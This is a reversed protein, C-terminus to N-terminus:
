GKKAPAPPADAATAEAAAPEPPALARELPVAGQANYILTTDGGTVPDLGSEERVENLTRKGNRLDRDHIQSLKDPDIEQDSSWAFELDTFGLDAQIVGDLFRKAWRTLPALGEELGRTDDTEATARNMQRVFPTPPLSFAFCVVRALWEDFDDKLPAEKFAQYKSGAPGWIMKAREAQNGALRGDFWDQFQKIQDPTWGEPANVMGPPTNGETFWALQATQRKLMTNITVVIQEVPGFGYAHNPRPNRPLYLLDETTLDAWIQGKIVQQFAPAPAQPRRGTEDLLVKITDGPIVDLGILGGGRNRRKEIAPADLVLLDELALRMWTAFPTVGDPRALFREARRIREEADGRRKRNGRPKVQWDLREIQDKRTEIALRVLETNAFARLQPFGFAAGERPTYTLNFGAPFDILRPPRQEAAIPPTGPSFLGWGPQFQSTLTAAMTTLSSRTGGEPM